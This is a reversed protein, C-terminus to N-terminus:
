ERSTPRDISAESSPRAFGNPSLVDYGDARNGKLYVLAREGEKPAGRHGYHGTEPDATGVYRKRWYRVYLRDGSRLDQGQRVEDLVIEALSHTYEYDGRTQTRTYIRSIKGTVIAAAAESLEEASLNPIEAPAKGSVVQALGLAAIWGVCCRTRTRM